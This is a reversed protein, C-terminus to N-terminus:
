ARTRHGLWKVPSSRVSSHMLSKRRDPRRSVIRARELDVNATRKQGSKDLGGTAELQATKQVVVVVILM